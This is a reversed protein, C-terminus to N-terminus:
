PATTAGNTPWSLEMRGEEKKWMDPSIEATQREKCLICIRRMWYNRVGWSSVIEWIHKCNQEM